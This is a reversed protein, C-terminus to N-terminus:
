QRSDEQRGTTLPSLILFCGPYSGSERLTAGVRRPTHLPMRAPGQVSVFVAQRRPPYNVGSRAEAITDESGDEPTRSIVQKDM